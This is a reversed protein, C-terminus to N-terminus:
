QREIRQAKDQEMEIWRDMFWDLKGPRDHGKLHEDGGEPPNALTPPPDVHSRLRRNEGPGLDESVSM